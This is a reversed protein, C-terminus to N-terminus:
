WSWYWSFNSAQDYFYAWGYQGSGYAPWFCGIDRHAHALDSDVNYRWQDDSAWGNMFLAAYMEMYSINTHVRNGYIIPGWADGGTYADGYRCFGNDYRWSSWASVYNLPYPWADPSNVASPSNVGGDAPKNTVAAISYKLLMVVKGGEETVPTGDPDLAVNSKALIAPLQKPVFETDLLYLGPPASKPDSYKSFFEGSQVFHIGKFQDRPLIMDQPVNASTVEVGGEVHETQANARLPMGLLVLAGMCLACNVALLQIIPKLKMHNKRETGRQTIKHPQPEPLPSSGLPSFDEAQDSIRKEKM